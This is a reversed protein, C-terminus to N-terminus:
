DLKKRNKTKKHQLKKQPQVLNKYQISGDKVIKEVTHAGEEDAYILAYNAKEYLPMEAVQSEIDQNFDAPGNIETYILSRGKLDIKDAGAYEAQAYEIDGKFVARGNKLVM